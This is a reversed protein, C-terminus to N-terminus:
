KLLNRLVEYQRLYEIGRQSATYVEKGNQQNVEILGLKFLEDLYLRARESNLRTEEMIRYSSQGNQTIKIIAAFIEIRSRRDRIMAFSASSRFRRNTTSIACSIFPQTFSVLWSINVCYITQHLPEGDHFPTRKITMVRASNRKMYNVERVIQEYYINFKQIM